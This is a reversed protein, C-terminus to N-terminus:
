APGSPASKTPKAAPEPARHSREWARRALGIAGIWAVFGMFYATACVPCIAHIEVVEVYLLYLALGVGATTLALLGYAIREDKKRANALGAVVLIAVFGAIGWIWDQVGLFTTRGSQAIAACSVVSNFTCAGTLSVNYFEAAAFLAVILGLGGGLGVMSRYTRTRM